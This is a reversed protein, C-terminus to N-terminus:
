AHDAGRMPLVAGCSCASGSQVIEIRYGARRIVTKGCAPCLTDQHHGLDINGVYVYKLRSAARRAFDELTEAPTPPASEHFRPFYRSLHLPVDPSLAAIWDIMRDFTAPDDNLHPVVLNTLEVHVGARVAATINELVPGLSAKTIDR